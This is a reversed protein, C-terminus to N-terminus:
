RLFRDVNADVEHSSVVALMEEDHRRLLSCRGSRNKCGNILVLIFFCTKKPVYLFFPLGGGIAM